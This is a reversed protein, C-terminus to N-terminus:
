EPQWAKPLPAGISWPADDRLEGYRDVQVRRRDDGLQLPRQLSSLAAPMEALLAMVDRGDRPQERLWLMAASIRLRAGVDQLRLSYQEYSPGNIDWAICGAANAVCRLSLLAPAPALQVPRDDRIQARVGDSCSRSLMWASRALTKPEDFLWRKDAASLQAMAARQFAFEGRMPLCLDLEAPTPATLARSCQAPLRVDAPLESLVDTFLRANREVMAGGVMAVILSDSGRMLMRGSGIDECMGQLAQVSNGRVHQLAHGSTRELLVQFAPLPMAPDASFGSRYHDYSGLSAIRAHLADHGRHAAEVADADARVEQLCGVSARRCWGTAATIKPFRGEAVSSGADQATGRQALRLVDQAALAQAQASAIGDYPLLWMAPFANRAPDQAVPAAMMAALAAREAAPVPLLWSVLLVLLALGGMGIVAVGVWKLGNLVANGQRM